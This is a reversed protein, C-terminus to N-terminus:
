IGHLRYILEEVVFSWIENPYEKEAEPYAALVEDIQESSLQISLSDAVSIVDEKEIM